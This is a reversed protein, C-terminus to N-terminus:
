IPLVHLDDCEEKGVPWRHVSFPLSYLFMIKTKSWKYLTVIIKKLYIKFISKLLNKVFFQKFLWIILLQQNNAIKTNGFDWNEQEQKHIM